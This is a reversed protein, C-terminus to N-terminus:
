EKVEEVDIAIEMNMVYKNINANDKSNIEGQLLFHNGLTVGRLCM